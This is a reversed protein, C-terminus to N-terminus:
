GEASFCDTYEVAGASQAIDLIQVQRKSDMKVLLILALCRSSEEDLVISIYVMVKEIGIEVAKPEAAIYWNFMTKNMTIIM